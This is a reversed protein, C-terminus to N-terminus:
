LYKSLFNYWKKTNVARASPHSVLLIIMENHTYSIPVIRNISENSMTQRKYKPLLIKDFAQKGSKGFIIVTKPTLIETIKILTQVGKEFDNSNPREKIHTMPRQILNYQAIHDYLKDIESNNQIMQSMNRYFKIHSKKEDRWKRHYFIDEQAVKDKENNQYHSEGVLLIKSKEYDKGVWPLWKIDKSEILKLLKDEM